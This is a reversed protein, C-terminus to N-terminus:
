VAVRPAGEADLLKDMAEYVGSVKVRATQDGFHLHVIVCSMVATSPMKFAHPFNYSMLPEDPLPFKNFKALEAYVKRITPGSAALLNVSVRTNHHWVHTKNVAFRSPAALFANLTMMATRHDKYWAGSGDGSKGSVAAESRVPFTYPNAGRGIRNFDEHERREWVYRIAPIRLDRKTPSIVNDHLQWHFMVDNNVISPYVFGASARAARILSPLNHIYPVDDDLKLLVDDDSIHAPSAYFEYAVKWNPRCRTKPVCSSRCGEKPVCSYNGHKVAVRAHHMVKAHTALKHLYAADSDLKCFDWLHVHTLTHADLERLLNRMLMAMLQQRGAFVMAIVRGASRGHGRGGGRGQGSRRRHAHVNGASADSQAPLPSKEGTAHLMSRLHLLLSSM